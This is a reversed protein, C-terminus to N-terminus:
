PRQDYNLRPLAAAAPGPAMMTDRRCQEMVVALDGRRRGRRRLGGM